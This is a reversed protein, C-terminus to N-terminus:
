LIKNILSKTHKPLYNNFNKYIHNFLKKSYNHNHKPGPHLRDVGLDFFPIGYDGDFRNFENFSKPIDMWGNWLWNCKKTELFYKILLHNKYWNSIDEYENQLEVKLEQIHKGNETEELFGWANTPIFPEIGGDNTYYAYYNYPKILTSSSGAIFGYKPHSRSFATTKLEFNTNLFNHLEGNGIHVPGNIDMVYNDVKPSFTNIGITSFYKVPDKGSVITQSSIYNGSTDNLGIMTM